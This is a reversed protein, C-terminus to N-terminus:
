PSLASPAGGQQMKTRENIQIQRWDVKNVATKLLPESVFELYKPMAIPKLHNDKMFARLQAEMNAADVGNKLRVQLKTAEGSREDPLGFAVCEAVGEHKSVIDEISVPSVQYGNVKIMRKNRDGFKLMMNEDLYGNDGTRLWGDETITANTEDINNYYGLMVQPGRVWIEGTEGVNLTNHPEDMSVIKVETRPAVLGVTGEKNFAGVLNCSVLPSCETMGYGESIIGTKGCLAEFDRRVGSQLAESGAIVTKLSTLDFSRFWPYAITASALKRGTKLISEPKKARAEMIAKAADRLNKPHENIMQLLKPAAFYTTAKRDEITKLVGATDRPDAIVVLENGSALDTINKATLGFIHSPPIAALAREEGPSIMPGGNPSPMRFFELMQLANAALNFHTLMAGKPVGSSGGTYQLMAVDEPNPPPPLTAAEGNILSQFTAVKEDAPGTVVVDRKFASFMMKKLPPLMDKLDCRVMQKLVGEEVLERIPTYFAKLDMTVMVSTDSNAIQKALKDKEMDTASYNVVVAGAKMAAYLMVPYYPTNPMFLGVKTGPTVGREVLGIAANDIMEGFERYTIEKGMFVMANRDAYKVVAEEILKLPTSDAPIDIDWRLADPYYGSLTEANAIAPKNM